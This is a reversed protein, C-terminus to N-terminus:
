WSRFSVTAKGDGVGRGLWTRLREFATTRLGLVVWKGAREADVAECRRLNFQTGTHIPLAWRRWVRSM